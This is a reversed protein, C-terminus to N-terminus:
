VLRYIATTKWGSGQYFNMAVRKLIFLLKEEQDPTLRSRFYFQASPTKGLSLIGKFNPDVATPLEAMKRFIDKFADLASVSVLSILFEKGILSCLFFQIM